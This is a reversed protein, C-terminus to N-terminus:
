SQASATKVAKDVKAKEAKASNLSRVLDGQKTIEENLQGTAAKYKAKLELLTKVAEDVKAKEAKASKLSRVLDGQKTIEENLTAADAGAPKAAAAAPAPAAGPKWDQGTAAKYKAKLELLAKVAEDVKAKDAKAAKLSRVLDGQKTIQQDLKAAEGGSSPAEKKAVSTQTPKPGLPYLRSIHTNGVETFKVDPCRDPRHNNTTPPSVNNECDNGM